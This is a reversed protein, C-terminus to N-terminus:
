SDREEVQELLLELKAITLARFETLTRIGTDIDDVRKKLYEVREANTM